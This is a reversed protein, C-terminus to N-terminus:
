PKIFSVWASRLEDRVREPASGGFGRKATISAVPDCLGRFDTGLLPSLERLTAEPLTFIDVDQEEALRVMRGVLNHAERFAMGKSTLYDAVDTAFLHADCAAKMRETDYSLSAILGKMVPLLENLCDVSDFLYRKDERLDTSYTLPLGHLVGLLGQYNAALRPAIARALEAADPNRKQPMISSGGSFADPLHIFGFESSAWLVIEAGLRSLHVGLTAATALYELVFDRDSVADLSNASVGDFGLARAVVHRDIDYNVGVAAGSGLPLELCARRAQL